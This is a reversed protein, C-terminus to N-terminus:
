NIEKAEDLIARARSKGIGFIYTLGVEGIKNGPLDVGRIRAM